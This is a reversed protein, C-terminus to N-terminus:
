PLGNVLLLVQQGDPPALLSHRAVCDFDAQEEAHRTELTWRGDHFTGSAMLFRPLGVRSTDPVFCTLAGAILADQWTVPPMVRARLSPWLRHLLSCSRDSESVCAMARDGHAVWREVESGQAIAATAAYSVVGPFSAERGEVVRDLGTFDRDSLNLKPTGDLLSAARQMVAPDVSSVLLDIASRQLAARDDVSSVRVDGDLAYLAALDSAPHGPAAAAVERGVQRIADLSRAQEEALLAYYRRDDARTSTDSVQWDCDCDASMRERARDRAYVREWASWTSELDLAAVALWPDVHVLWRSADSPRFWDDGSPSPVPRWRKWRPVLETVLRASWGDARVESWAESVPVTNPLGVEISTFPLQVNVEPVGDPARPWTSMVPRPTRAAVPLPAPASPAATRRMSGIGALSALLAGFVWRRNTM